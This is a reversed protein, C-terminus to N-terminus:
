ARSDEEGLWPTERIKEIRKVDDLAVYKRRSGKFKKSPIDLNLMVNYLTSRKMGLFDMVEEYTLYEKGEYREPHAELRKQNSM